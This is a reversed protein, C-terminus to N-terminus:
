HSQMLEVLQDLCTGWGTHFGMEEHQKATQLDGHRAIATYNTGGNGDDEMLIFATFPFDTGTPRFGPGLSSTWVLRKKPVVELYCGASKPMDKGEPTRMQTEFKGGVRLDIDCFITEWPKPTFWHPIIKTDTWARWVKAPSVPVTRKLVLDLKPNIDESGIKSM